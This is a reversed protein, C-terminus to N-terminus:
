SWQIWTWWCPRNAAM